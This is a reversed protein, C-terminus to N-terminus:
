SRRASTAAAKRRAPHHPGGAARGAADAASRVFVLDYAGVFGVGPSWTFAGTTAISSRARGAASALEDGVRLYGRTADAGTASASRVARLSRTRRRAARRPRSRRSRMARWPADAIGAAGASSRRPSRAAGGRRRRAGRDSGRGRAPRRSREGVGNSSASSAAASAGRRDPATPRPGCSRTCATRCRRDHRDDPLRRRRQQERTRPLDRRHRRPLPQLVANGVPVGDVYVM